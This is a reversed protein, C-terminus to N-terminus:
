WDLIISIIILYFAITFGIILFWRTRTRQLFRIGFAQLIKCLTFVSVFVVGLLFVGMILFASEWDADAYGM